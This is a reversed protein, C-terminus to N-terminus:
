TRVGIAFLFSGLATPAGRCPSGGANSELLTMEFFIYIFSFSEAKLFKCHRISYICGSEFHGSSVYCFLSMQTRLQVKTNGAFSFAPYFRSFCLFVLLIGLYIYGDSAIPLHRQSVQGLVQLRFGTAGFLLTTAAGDQFSFLLASCWCFLDFYLSSILCRVCASLATIRLVKQTANEASTDVPGTPCFNVRQREACAPPPNFLFPGFFTREDFHGQELKVVSIEAIGM